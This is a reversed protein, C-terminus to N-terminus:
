KTSRDLERRVALGIKELVYPKRVYAGAGLEQAKQVRETDSYGSVIIAKQRPHTELIAKYTDLGDMGPDMIMDLIVLHAQGAQLYAVAEEGSGVATAQYNLKTMMQVALERQEKIDDVILISEGRGLYESLSVATEDASAAERTVPFYITLTTGKGQESQVDIYGQHDKVTGWVVSLGLGTGSRGMVKKTYFPEFIRKLDDAKIGEGTDSVALVVYDGERVDDYGQVPKDLYQNRTTITLAGGQPMAEMANIFLNMITKSLHVPSGMINLLDKELSTNVQINSNFSCLREFEPGKQYDTVIDNLNIVASDAVGRRAITLLDQVIAAAKEGSQMISIVRSRIKSAAEIQHLLLESYGTVVGLVNNLDHAVGGVLMGLSEMKEARQLREEVEMREQEARKRDTIDITFGALLSPKNARIIPFKLTTYIRGNLEEEAAIPKGEALVRLDDAMMSRALEPPFLDEMTKGLLEKIPRGLMQEYNKSINIARGKEDKFFVFVPSYEMFLNFITEIEKLEDEVHRRETINKIVTVIQIVSANELIPIKRTETYIERGAIITCEETCLPKGTNFTLEYERHIKESLFPFVEFLNLGVIDAGVPVLSAWDVLAKNALVIQMNRDIVHIADGLTDLTVQYQQELNRIDM